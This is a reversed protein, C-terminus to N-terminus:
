MPKASVVLCGDYVTYETVMYNCFGRMVEERSMRTTTKLKTDYVNLFESFRM